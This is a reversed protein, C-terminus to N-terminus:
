VRSVSSLFLSAVMVTGLCTTDQFRILNFIVEVTQPFVLRIRQMLLSREGDRGEGTGERRYADASSLIDQCM